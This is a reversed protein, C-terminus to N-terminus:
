GGIRILRAAAERVLREPDTDAAEALLEVSGEIGAGQLAELAAKRVSWDPDKVLKKINSLTEHDKLSLAASIGAKRIEADRDAMATRIYDGAEQRGTRGLGEIAEMRVPGYSDYLLTLLADFVGPDDEYSLARAAQARVWPDDDKLLLLMPKAAEPVNKGSLANVASLRVRADEDVICKLVAKLSAVEGAMAISDVAATRVLPDEDKLLGELVAANGKGLLGCLFAINRRFSPDPDQALAKLDLEERVGPVIAIAKVAAEQVDQYEDRLLHLMPAASKEVQLRGLSLAAASRTHGDEDKLLPLLFNAARVDGAQGLLEACARRVATDKENLLFLLPEVGDRSIELLAAYADKRLDDYYLLKSLPGVASRERMWGMLRAASKSLEPEYSEIFGRISELDEPKLMGKLKSALAGPDPSSWMIKAAGKVAIERIVPVEDSLAEEFVPWASPEGLTYLADLAAERLFGDKSAEILPGAAGSDGLEGLAAAANFALWQDDSKLFQVLAPLASKAKMKGLHEMASSRVNMDSDGLAKILAEACSLDGIEGIIDVIFKRVDRDPEDLRSSLGKAAPPGMRILGEAASNRAGANDESFLARYLGEFVEEGGFSVLADLATKRVRWDQDYVSKLLAPVYEGSIKESLEEVALRRTEPDEAELRKLIEMTRGDDM